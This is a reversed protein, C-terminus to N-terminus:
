KMVGILEKIVMEFSQYSTAMNANETARQELLEIVKRESRRWERWIIILAGFLLGAVPGFLDTIEYTSM